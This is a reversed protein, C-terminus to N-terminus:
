YIGREPDSKIIGEDPELAFLRLEVGAEKLGKNIETTMAGAMVELLHNKNEYKPYFLRKTGGQGLREEVEVFGGDAMNVMLNNIVTRSCEHKDGIALHIDKIPRPWGKNADIDWLYELADVAIESMFMRLGTNFPDINNIRVSPM